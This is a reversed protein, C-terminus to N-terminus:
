IWGLNSLRFKMAVQSVQFANALEDLRTIGKKQILFGVAFAPMLLEAAFKNASVERPDAAQSSYNSIPDRFANGHQLAFHGLEHAITFRQRILPEQPNVLITPTANDLFFAGSLGKGVLREDKQVFVKAKRAIEEPKVPLKWDWYADLYEKATSAPM